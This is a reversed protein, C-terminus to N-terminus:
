KPVSGGGVTVMQRLSHPRSATQIDHLLFLRRQGQRSNLWSKQSGSRQMTMMCVARNRSQLSVNRVYYRYSMLTVFCRVYFCVCCAFQRARADTCPLRGVIDFISSEWIQEPYSITQERLQEPYSLVRLAGRANQVGRRTWKASVIIQM